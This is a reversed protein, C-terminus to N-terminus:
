VFGMCAPRRLASTVLSGNKEEHQTGLLRFTPSYSIAVQRSAKSLSSGLRILTRTFGCSGQYSEERGHVRGGAASTRADAACRNPAPFPRGPLSQLRDRRPRTDGRAVVGPRLGGM